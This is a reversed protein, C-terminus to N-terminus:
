YTEVNVNPGSILDAVQQFAEALQSTDAADIYVGTCNEGNNQCSSVIQRIITSEKAQMSLGIVIISIATEPSQAKSALLTQLQRVTHRSMNDAGDTLAVVFQRGAFAGSNNSAMNVADVIADRFATRGGLADCGRTMTDKISDLDGGAQRLTILKDVRSAFTIFGVHDQPSVYEDVVHLLSSKAARMRSGAMSGSTDMVFIVRKAPANAINMTRLTRALTSDADDLWARLDKLPQSSSSANCMGVRGKAADIFKKVCHVDIHAGAGETAEKYYNLIRELAEDDPQLVGSPWLVNGRAAALRQRLIAPPTKDMDTYQQHSDIMEQAQDLAGNAMDQRGRVLHLSAIEIYLGVARPVNAHEGSVFQEMHLVQYLNQLAISVLRDEQESDGGAEGSHAAAQTSYCLAKNHLRNALQRVHAVSQQVPTAMPIAQAPADSANEYSPPAVAIVVDLQKNTQEDLQARADACADDFLEVAQRFQAAAAESQPGDRSILRQAQLLHVNGLNNHCVGIGKKNQLATFLQLAEEYSAQAVALDGGQLSVNAFRVVTAMQQFVRMLVTMEPSTDQDLRLSLAGFNRNNLSRVAHLMINVPVVVSNAIRTAVYLVGFGIIGILVCLIATAGALGKNISSKTERFPAYVDSQPVTIGVAFGQRRNPNPNAVCPSQMVTTEPAFSLYWPDNTDTAVKSFAEGDHEPANIKGKHEVMDTCGRLMYTTANNFVGDGEEMWNQTGTNMGCNQTEGEACRRLFQEQGKTAETLLPHSAVRGDFAVMYGYTHPMKDVKMGAINNDVSAISFDIAVVGLFKSGNACDGDCIPAAATMGLQGNEAFIYPSTFIVDRRQKAEQYWGRCRPDYELKEWKKDYNDTRKQTDEDFCSTPGQNTTKCPQGARESSKRPNYSGPGKVREWEKRRYDEDKSYKARSDCMYSYPEGSRRLYADSNSYPYSIFLAEDDGNEAELGLFIQSYDLAASEAMARFVAHVSSAKLLHDKTAASSFAPPWQKCGGYGGCDSGQPKSHVYWGSRELKEWPRTRAYASTFGQANIAPYLTTPNDTQSRNTRLVDTVLRQLTHMDGDVRSFVETTFISKERAMRQLNAKESTVMSDQTTKVWSPFGDTLLVITVVVGVLVGATLTGLVHKLLRKKLRGDGKEAIKQEQSFTLRPAIGEVGMATAAPQVV